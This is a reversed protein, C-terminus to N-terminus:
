RAKNCLIEPQGYAWVLRVETGKEWLSENRGLYRAGGVGPQRVMLSIRDGREAILTPPETAFYTAVLEDAPNAPDCGYRQVALVPVLRYRAQLEVIRLIYSDRVCGLTGAAGAKWCDDRGKIWGRQEAKLVPPRENVAKRRAAAYVEALHQDLQRLDPDACVQAAISGPAPKVRCAPPVPATTTAAQGPQRALQQEILTCWAASDRAPLGPRDRLGLRFEVVGQWEDSGLDPGHGQRDGSPLRAEVSRQWASACISAALADFSM